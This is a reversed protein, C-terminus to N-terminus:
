RRSLNGAARGGSRVVRAKPDGGVEAVDLTQLGLGARFRLLGDIAAAFVLRVALPAVWSAKRFPVQGQRSARLKSNLNRQPHLFIAGARNLGKQFVPSSM